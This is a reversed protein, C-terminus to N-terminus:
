KPTHRGKKSIRLFLSTGTSDTDKILHRLMRTVEDEQHYDFLRSSVRSPEIVHGFGNLITYWSFQFKLRPSDDKPSDQINTDLSQNCYSLDVDISDSISLEGDLSASVVFACIPNPDVTVPVPFEVFRSQASDHVVKGKIRTCPKDAALVAAQVKPFWPKNRAWSWMDPHLTATASLGANKELLYAVIDEMYGDLAIHLATRATKDQLSLNCAPEVLAKVVSLNPQIFTNPSLFYHIPTSGHVTFNVDAGRQRLKRISEHSPRGARVAMHLTNDPLNGETHSLLSDVVVENGTAAAWAM